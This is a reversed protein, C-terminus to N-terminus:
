SRVATNEKIVKYFFIYIVLYCYANAGLDTDIFTMLQIILRIGLIFRCTFTAHTRSSLRLKDEVM